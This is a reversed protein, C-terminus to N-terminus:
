RFRRRLARYRTRIRLARRIRASLPRRLVSAAFEPQQQYRHVDIPEGDFIHGIADLLLPRTAYQADHGGVPREDVEVVGGLRRWAEVLPLVQEVHVGVDDAASQVFLRPLGRGAAREDLLAFIRRTVFRNDPSAPDGDPCIYAIEDFRGCKAAAIDLRTHPSIAVVGSADLLLALAIAGHAGMSSGVTVLREPGLHRLALQQSVIEVMAREVFLDGAKGTYYTGNGFAGYTDSLFLWDHSADSGLMRLRHFYGHHQDRNLRHRDAVGFFASLHVALGESGRHAVVAYGFERGSSDVYTAFDAKLGPM